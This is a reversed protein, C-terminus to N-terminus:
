TIKSKYGHIELEKMIKLGQDNEASRGALEQEGTRISTLNSPGFEGLWVRTPGSKM